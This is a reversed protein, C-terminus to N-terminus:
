KLHREKFCLTDLDLSKISTAWRPLKGPDPDIPGFELVTVNQLRYLDNM